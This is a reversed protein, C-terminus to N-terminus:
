SSLSEQRTNVNTGSVASRRALDSYLAQYRHVMRELSFEERARTRAASGMSRRRSVDSVLVDLVDALRAADLPPALLGTSGEIVMEDAGGVATAVVPLGSAMAELITNSMGESKSPQVFIDISSFMTEIDHRHGLLRVHERLGLREIQAELEGRLPGEGAIVATVNRGRTRLIQVAEILSAHNKVDVLRGAAGLVVAGSTQEDVPQASAARSSPFRTLNVGNRIVHIRDLPIGVDRSMKEALRSSVSLLQDVHRWGWRQARVQRPRLQLTGHEGHAIVPIRAM